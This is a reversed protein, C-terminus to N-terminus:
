AIGIDTGVAGETEPSGSQIGRGPLDHYTGANVFVALYKHRLLHVVKPFVPKKYVRLAIKHSAYFGKRFQTGVGIYISEYSPNFLDRLIAVTRSTEEYTLTPLDKAQQTCRLCENWSELLINLEKDLESVRKGEAVTRVIVGFNKPKISM